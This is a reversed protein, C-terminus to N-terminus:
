YIKLHKNYPKDAPSKFTPMRVHIFESTLVIVWVKTM